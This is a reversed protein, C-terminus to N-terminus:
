ILVGGSLVAPFLIVPFSSLFEYRCGVWPTLASVSFSRLALPPETELARDSIRM